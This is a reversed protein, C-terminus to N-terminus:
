SIRRGPVPPLDAIRFRGSAVARALRAPTEKQLMAIIRAKIPSWQAHMPCATKESCVKFGLVCSETVAPGEILTLITMLDTDRAGEALVYGGLRGRSSALLGHRALTQMIKALYAAPVQLHEAAVRTLVPEDAPQLAMFVLAQIAYHTTRSFIM